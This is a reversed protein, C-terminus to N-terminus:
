PLQNQNINCKKNDPPNDVCSTCCTNDFNDATNCKIRNNKCEVFKTKSLSGAVGAIIDGFFIAARSTIYQVIADHTSVGTGFETLYPPPDNNTQLSHGM